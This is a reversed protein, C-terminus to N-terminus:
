LCFKKWKKSSGRCVSLIWFTEGSVPPQISLYHKVRGKSESFCYKKRLSPFSFSCNMTSQNISKDVTVYCNYLYYHLKGLQLILHCTRPLFFIVKLLYVVKFSNWLLPFNLPQKGKGQAALNLVSRSKRLWVIKFHHRDSKIHKLLFIGGFM